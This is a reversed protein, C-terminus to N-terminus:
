PHEAVELTFTESGGGIVKDELVIGAVHPEDLPEAVTMGFPPVAGNENVHDCPPPVEAVAPFRGAPFKLTM